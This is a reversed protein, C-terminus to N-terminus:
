PKRGNHAFQTCGRIRYSCDSIYYKLNTLLKELTLLYKFSYLNEGNKRLIELIYVLTKTPVSNSVREKLLKVIRKLEKKRRQRLEKIYYPRRIKVFYRLSPIIKQQGKDASIIYYQPTFFLLRQLQKLPSFRNNKKWM